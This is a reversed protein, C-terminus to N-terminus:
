KTNWVKCLALSIKIVAYHTNAQSVEFITLNLLVTGFM